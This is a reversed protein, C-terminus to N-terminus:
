STVRLGVVGMGLGKVSLGISGLDDGFARSM